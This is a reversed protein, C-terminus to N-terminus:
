TFETRIFMGAQLGVRNFLSETGPGYVQHLLRLRTTDKGGTALIYHERPESMSSPAELSCSVRQRARRWLIMLNLGRTLVIPVM